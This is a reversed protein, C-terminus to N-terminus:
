CINEAEVFVVNQTSMVSFKVCFLATKAVLDM